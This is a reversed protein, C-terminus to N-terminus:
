LALKSFCCDAPLCTAGRTCMIRIGHWGTRQEKKKISRRLPSAGVVLKITKPKVARPEFVRDVASSVRVKVMIGGILNRHTFLLRLMIQQTYGVISICNNQTNKSYLKWTSPINSNTSNEHHHFVHILLTKMTISYIFPTHNKKVWSCVCVYNYWLHFGLKYM